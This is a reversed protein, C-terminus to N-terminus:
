CEVFGTDAEDLQLIFRTACDRTKAMVGERKRCDAIETSDGSLVM